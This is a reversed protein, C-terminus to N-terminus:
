EIGLAARELAWDPTPLKPGQPKERLCSFNYPRSFTHNDQVETLTRGPTAFEVQMGNVYTLSRDGVASKREERKVPILELGQSSEQPYVVCTEPPSAKLLRIGYAKNRTMMSYGSREAEEDHQTDIIVTPRWSLGKLCDRPLPLNGEDGMPISSAGWSSAWAEDKSFRVGSIDTRTRLILTDVFRHPPIARCIDQPSSVVDYKVDGRNELRQYARVNAPSSYALPKGHDDLASLVLVNRRDCIEEVRAPTACMARVTSGVLGNSTFAFTSGCFKERTDKIAGAVMLHPGSTVRDYLNPSGDEKTYNPSLTKFGDLVSQGVDVAKQLFVEFDNSSGIPRKDKAFTQRSPLDAIRTQFTQHTTQVVEQNCKFTKNGSFFSQRLTAQDELISNIKRDLQRTDWGATKATEIVGKLEAIDKAKERQYEGRRSCIVLGEEDDARKIAEAVKKEAQRTDLKLSNESSPSSIAAATNITM